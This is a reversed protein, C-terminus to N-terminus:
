ERWRRSWPSGYTRSRAAFSRSVPSFGRATSALSEWRHGLFMLTVGSVLLQLTVVTVLGAQDGMGAVAWAAGALLVDSATVWYLWRRCGLRGGADWCFGLVLLAELLLYIAVVTAVDDIHTAVRLVLVAGVALAFGASLVMWTLGPGRHVAGSIMRVGGVFVYIWALLQDLRSAAFLLACATFGGLIVLSVGELTWVGSRDSGFDTGAHLRSTQQLM